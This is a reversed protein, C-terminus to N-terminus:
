RRGENQRPPILAGQADPKYKKLASEGLIGKVYAITEPYPPIGGYRDVIQPGANYAALALATNNNYREILAALYNAGITINRHVEFVGYGAYTDATSSELQMLGKAHARSVANVNGGSENMLVSRLLQPSVGAYDATIAILTDLKEPSLYEPKPHLAVHRRHTSHRAPHYHKATAIVPDTHAASTFQSVAAAVAFLVFSVAAQVAHSFVRPM